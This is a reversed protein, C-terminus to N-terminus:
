EFSKPMLLTVSYRPAFSLSCQDAYPQRTARFTSPIVVGILLLATPEYRCVRTTRQGYEALGRQHVLDRDPHDTPYRASSPM